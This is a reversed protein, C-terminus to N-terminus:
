AKAVAARWVSLREEAEAREMRPEFRREERWAARIEDLSRYLGAALGALLAAGLATTSTVRPRVITRGLVDAQFQLLLDNEAAGGDVRVERLPKGSDAEMARLVDHCQFAIGELAARAIHAATTGRTLGSIIGRAEPRWHPAGLGALAPVMTVGGADDVSAALREVDRSRRIIGLGDRLWGVAAGAIFVSGELAFTTQGGIRWAATSLLGHRSPLPRLGTNVLLFAGTGYTCKADGPAFCAQGFLAAQQDGVAAALPIGDPLFGVGSTEALLEDNPRVEPLMARPIGFLDLMAGDWEGSRLDLLLTRSANSVDTVHLRGGSLRRLLWTDVTGLRLEGAAARRAAGRHHALIWAAKTASFYPDIVLGTVARVREELGRAKLEACAPATRRDQWVIARGLPEGTRADWVLTTERQNTIGVAAIRAPDIRGARLAARVAAGVSRWIEEPQHEVWGPRPYHQPFERGAEAVM